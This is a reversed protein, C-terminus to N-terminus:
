IREVPEGRPNLCDLLRYVANCHPCRVRCDGEVEERAVETALGFHGDLAAIYEFMLRGCRVCLQAKRNLNPQFSM